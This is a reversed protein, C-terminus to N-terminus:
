ESGGKARSIEAAARVIARRTAAHRNPSDTREEVWRPGALYDATFYRVQITMQERTIWLGLDVALRMADGDYALPNWAGKCLTQSQDRDPGEWTLVMGAARAAAELLERESMNAEMRPLLASPHRNAFAM